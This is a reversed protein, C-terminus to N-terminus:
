VPWLGEIWRYIPEGIFRHRGAPDYNITLDGAAGLARYARRVATLLEKSKGPDGRVEQNIFLPKPASAALIEAVDMVPILGPVCALGGIRGEATRERWSPFRGSPAAAGIRPDVASLMASLTGGMSFGTVGIRGKMVEPRGRLVTVADMANSVCWGLLPRGVMLSSFLLDSDPTGSGEPDDNREGFGPCHFSLTVYGREALRLGYDGECLELSEMGGPSRHLLGTVSSMGGKLCGHICVWAPLPKEVNKPTILLAEWGTENRPSILLRVSRVDKGTKEEIVRVDPDSLSPLKLLAKLRNRARTRWGPVEDPNKPVSLEPEPPNNAWVAIQLQAKM